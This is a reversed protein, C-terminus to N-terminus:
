KLLVYNNMDKFFIASENSLDWVLAEPRNDIGYDAQIEAVLEKKTLDEIDSLQNCLHNDNLSTSTSLSISVAIHLISSVM